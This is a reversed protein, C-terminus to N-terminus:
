GQVTPIGHWRSRKPMTEGKMLLSLPGLVAGEEMRTDYLVVSMNSVTCREGIRLHSSKMIRDEFLHNQIICGGNLAAYDAIEVLDFESFLSTGIYCHRGIKCGLLRLLPSVLPTGFFAAVIPAMTSEYIGNIMENLWVYPSWLPVVVPKFTGMISWKLGVVVAIAIAMAAWGLFPALAYVAWVGYANYLALVVLFGATGIAAGLYSPILIRLGDIMARQAYLKPTPQYTTAENFGTVKQRNPLRFGPSGLWDTGDPTISQPPASLVGLLCGSGLSAGQPLIASNGVFSRDGIRNKAMSFRGLHARGGGLICGDAFFVGDGAELMDPYVSWVTSMETHRGLKAGLLRMWPPLYLTTFILMGATRAAGMMASTLWFQLYKFSYIPYTGPKPYPQVIQKCLVLWLCSWVIFVPVAAAVLPLRLSPQTHVILFMSGLGIAIAPLGFFLGLVLGSLMQGICFLTLYANSRRLPPGEPVAVEPVARAPSGRRFEGAAITEGDPLLSQDDLRSDDGMAVDLGLASHAGIFVRSGIDVRGILLYGNEIRIGPLQTDPGISTDDGLSICDWASVLGTYLHCNRGVKAGMLRWLAPALPTGGFGGLGSLGQLRSVIWWRLYYSGWLPYAGPKYRGIIVWKAGIGIALMLPWLALGVAVLFLITSLISRRFYLMDMVPPLVIVMPLAFVPILGLLYAAQAAILRWGPKRDVPTVSTALTRSAPTANATAAEAMRSEVHAALRRVTPYAYIDRVAIAIEARTRLLAVLQAAILSHGGLDLFFDQEAGVRPLKFIEAWVAAIRTELASAPADAAVATVAVLPAVPDPLRKRDVKGSALMPLEGLVDLYAPVMYAPLRARLAGLVRGRDLGADSANLVVCAALAPVGNRDVLRVVASAIEPQELLVAEIEALEVRYGRIKVQSDIRGFFELDGEENVRVLDGTRYLQGAPYLRVFSRATLEPQNLYGRAVGPGGIYLEGQEGAPVRRMEADLVFATYGALPRGITIPKDPVLEVATTNVTAETPGYVNLMRRGPRAWRTVLEPPCAEGSVVLQTLCPVNDTMTSLLTPVTSLYTVGADTLFQALDNGFKPTEPTGVILAAGNSFAMWIEETSGDFGLSFGQFVRDQPTTSCVKNFAAVFHSVNRHEAVVGKPRGTTGSTYLVYCVDSPTLGTEARTLRADCARAIEAACTDLAVVRGDFLPSLRGALAAETLIVKIGAEGAIFRIREDPLGPELPVYAGGAKLCALIALIPLESRPLCLGVFAGPAVGAARLVHAFRNARRDVEAYSLVEEGRIIAPANGRADAQAEFLEHLCPPDGGAGVQSVGHTWRGSKVDLQM